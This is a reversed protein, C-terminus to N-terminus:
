IDLLLRKMAGRDAEIGRFGRLLRGARVEDLMEEADAPTIPIKRFVVDQYLEAFIGGAGFMISLGFVPDKLLGAIFEGVGSEMPEVLIQARPFREALEDYRRMLEKLNWVNTFVGGQDTKHLVKSSSVKVAVPFEIPLSGLEERDPLLFDTTSIGHEKLLTKAEAEPLHHRGGRRISRLDIGCM